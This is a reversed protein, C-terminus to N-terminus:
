FTRPPPLRSYSQEMRYTIVLYLKSWHNWPCLNCGLWQLRSLSVTLSRVFAENVANRVVVPHCSASHCMAFNLIAGARYSTTTPPFPSPLPSSAMEYTRDYHLTPVHLVTNGKNTTEAVGSPREVESYRYKGKRNRVSRWYRRTMVTWSCLCAVASLQATSTSRCLPAYQLQFVPKSCHMATFLPCRSSHLFYARLIHTIFLM